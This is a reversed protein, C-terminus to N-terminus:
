KITVDTSKMDDIDCIYRTHCLVNVFKIWFLKGILVYYRM